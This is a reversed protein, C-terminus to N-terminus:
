RPVSHQCQAHHLRRARRDGGGPGRHFQQSGAPERRHVTARVKGGPAQVPIAGDYRRRKRAAVIRHDERSSLSLRGRRPCKWGAGAGRGAIGDHGLDQYEYSTMWQPVRYIARQRTPAAMERQENRTTHGGNKGCRGAVARIQGPAGPVGGAVPSRSRSGPCHLAGRHGSGAGGRDAGPEIAPDRAAAHSGAGVRRALYEDYPGGLRKVCRRCRRCRPRVSRRDRGPGEGERRSYLAAGLKDRGGHVAGPWGVDGGHGSQDGQVSHRRRAMAICSCGRPLLAYQRRARGM